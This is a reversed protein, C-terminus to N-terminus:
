PELLGRLRTAAEIGSRFGDEHFGWGRWAGCYLTRRLGSIEQVRVQAARADPSFIPHRYEREFWPDRLRRTPNLTVFFQRAPDLGQLRNMWYTFQYRLDAGTFVNWSSWAERDDPMVSVDSHVVARNSQYRIAGLIETEEPAADILALAEDSHCALVLYDYREGGGDTALVVAAADRRISRVPCSLRVQGRFSATFARVYSAAGGSVVRWEPRGRWRTLGHHTMFAAVHGIPLQRASQRPASWIAACMPLLHLEAFARSYREAGLYEALTRTDNEPIAGARRYFRRIDNLMKLFRPRLTNRRQCFVAGLHSTGYALGTATSVGFSMETPQSAVGLEALWRSFRPYNDANFVIFGSDVAYARGDVLLNHTDTHGGLRPEAEFLTVDAFQQCAHAAAIGAIGGGVVAVRM